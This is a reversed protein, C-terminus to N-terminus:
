PCEGRTAEFEARWSGDGTRLASQCDATDCTPLRRYLLSGTQAVAYFRNMTRPCTGHSCPARWSGGRGAREEPAHLLPHGFPPLPPIMLLNMNVSCNLFCGAAEGSGGRLRRRLSASRLPRLAKGNGDGTTDAEWAPVAPDGCPWCSHRPCATGAGIKSVRPTPPIGSSTGSAPVSRPARRVGDCSKEKALKGAMLLNPAMSDVRIVTRNTM